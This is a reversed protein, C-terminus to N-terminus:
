SMRRRRRGAGPCPRDAACRQPAALEDTALSDVGYVVDELDALLNLDLELLGVRAALEGQTRDQGDKAHGRLRAPAGAKSKARSGSNSIDYGEFTYDSETINGFSEFPM